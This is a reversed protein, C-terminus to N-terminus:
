DTILLRSPTIDGVKLGYKAVVEGSFEQISITGSHELTELRDLAQIRVDNVPRLLDPSTFKNIHIAEKNISNVPFGASL